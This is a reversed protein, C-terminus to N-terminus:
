RGEQWVSISRPQEYQRPTEKDGHFIFIAAWYAALKNIKKDNYMRACALM